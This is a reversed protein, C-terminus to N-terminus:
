IKCVCTFSLRWLTDIIRTSGHCFPLCLCSSGLLEQTPENLASLLFLGLEWRFCDPLHPCCGFNDESRGLRMTVDACMFMDYGHRLCVFYM